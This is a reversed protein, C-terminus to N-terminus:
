GVFAFTTQWEPYHEAASRGRVMRLRGGLAGAFALEPLGEPLPMVAAVALAPPGGVIVNVRLREGRRGAAAHHVGIGRHIQYHLGVERDPEYENGGLQVRYMGLNSKRWGPHDPHETYVQPLTVFPGGDQPWCTLQPLQRLTTTHRLVPGTSSFKPRLNWALLPLNWYRWPRRGLNGPDTKLEVLKRVGALADRFLFKARDLTGFLNSVMPFPSGKVRAFYLAPGGAQYVRRHVEAAELHPDIEHEIRALHHHRELDAVAATLNRHGM